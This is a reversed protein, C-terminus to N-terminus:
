SLTEIPVPTDPGAAKALRRDFTVFAEASGAAALHVMDAFDAGSAFREIVWGIGPPAERLTPLDVLAALAEAIRARPWEYRSGLVWATELVVSPLLAFDRSVIAKAATVQRPDDNVLLRM